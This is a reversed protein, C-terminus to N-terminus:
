KIRDDDRNEPKRAVDYEWHGIQAYQRIEDAILDDGYHRKVVQVVDEVEADNLRGLIRTLDGQDVGRASDLKMLVLYARPIVRKGDSNESHPAALSELLWPKDSTLLDIEPNNGNAWATGRLGLKSGPFGLEITKQWGDKRLLNEAEGIDEPHVLFDVDSTAREPAYVSAAHAGILMIRLNDFLSM